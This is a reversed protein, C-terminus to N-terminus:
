LAMGDAMDASTEYRELNEMRGPIKAMAMGRLADAGHSWKDHLPNNSWVQMKDNWAKSYNDFCGILYTCREDVWLNPILSRLQEIGDAVSSNPLVVTNTIGLEHFRALRTKGGNGLERVRIDHPCFVLKINYPSNLMHAAYHELGEGSNYYEDIIRYRGSYYQFYVLVFTDDIGLDISVFVPLNHDWLGKVLRKKHRVWTNFLSAYYSGSTTKQFAEEPTAPYEQFIKEGLERHQIIWFNKQKKTLTVGTEEELKDFYQQESQSPEIETSSVCDPDDLWSLFVPYFSKGDLPGTWAVANDWTRKFDNDGEATSEIVVSNGPAIAQLTGTKVEEAKDPSSKCIKAYESIHLRHLTTSRFSTRIFMTSNTLYGQEETKDTTKGLGILKAVSPHLNNYALNVRKLLTASENKGQALLGINLDPIIIADDFYSILYFTSIGQQRSKLIILRSHKLGAAYVKHQAYNMRFTIREGRKDIITYWNNLRWLKSSFFNEVLDKDDKPERRFVDLDVQDLVDKYIDLILEEPIDLTWM